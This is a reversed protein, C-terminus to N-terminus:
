FQQGMTFHFQSKNASPNGPIPDFGYGWDVGLAGVMPLFARIGIGASRKLGFPNFEEFHYWSNGGETFILAYIMASPQLSIPYRLEMTMKTYINAIQTNTIQTANGVHSERSTNPTVTYDAYGRLGIIERGGMSNWSMGSGGLVFGEFPSYGLDKSFYGLYGFQSNFSLVLDKALETVWMGKYTWKHYEILRYKKANKALDQKELNDGINQLEVEDLYWFKPREFLSFPPTIQLGITFVSGSRPYTPQDITSRSLTTGLSVTNSTGDTFTFWQDKWNRLSYHQYSLEHSLTFNEDPRKLRRGLGIGVSFLSFRQNSTSSSLINTLGKSYDYVQNMISFSFSNPKKGGFWPDVFSMSISRMWSGNSQVRLSLSQGDGSPVPRWAKPNFFDHTSFNNFKLGVSGVLSKYGWGGSIELQDNAKEVLKYNIDVTGDTTNPMPEPQIKEPDFNGLAALRRVSNVIDARSYLDGPRTFLERRVVNENTKTNGTIIIRNITAQPGEVIHMELDISDNSIKSEVPTISSFLYGNNQYLNTVADEDTVLRKELTVQDYVDGKKLILLKQLLESPYKTNGMWLINRIHYQKGEQIKIHLNIRNESLVEVSDSIFAYDRYGNKAYFDQLKKKDEKYEKEIFKSPKFFNISIQKTKKFSRRLRKDSFKDNGTFDINKIRVKEGRSVKATLLIRNKTASDAKQIITVKTNFYGKEKYHQKITNVILQNSNDTVQIGPKIKLKETLDTADSKKVGTIVFKSLRPREKLYLTLWVKDGEIKDAIIKVDSFLGHTWFKEIIKTIEDGPLTIKKGVTLGSMLLLTKTDLFQIGSVKVDEITYEKPESYDAVPLNSFDTNQAFTTSATILFALLVKIKALM